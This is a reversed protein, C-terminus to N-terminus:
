AEKQRNNKQSVFNANSIKYISKGIVLAVITGLIFAILVSHIMHTHIWISSAIAIYLVGFAFHVKRLNQHGIRGELIRGNWHWYWEWDFCSALLIILGVLYSFIIVGDSSPM